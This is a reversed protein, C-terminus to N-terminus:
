PRRVAQAALVARELVDAADVADLEIREIHGAGARFEDQLRAHSVEARVHEVVQEVLLAPQQVPQVLDHGDVRHLVPGVEAAPTRGRVFSEAVVLPGDGGDQGFHAVLDLGAAGEGGEVEVAM